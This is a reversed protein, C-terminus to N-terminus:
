SDYYPKRQFFNAKQPLFYTKSFNDYNNADFRM